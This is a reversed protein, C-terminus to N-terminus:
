RRARCRCAARAFDGALAPFVDVEGLLSSNTVREFVGSPSDRSIGSSRVTACAEAQAGCPRVAEDDVILATRDADDLARPLRREFVGFDAVDTEVIEAVGEVGAQHLGADQLFDAHREHTM